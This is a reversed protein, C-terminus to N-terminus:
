SLTINFNDSSQTGALAGFIVTTASSVQLPVYSQWPIGRKAEAAARDSASPMTVLEPYALEVEGARALQPTM